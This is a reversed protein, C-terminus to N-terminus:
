FKVPPGTLKFEVSQNPADEIQASLGSSGTRTYKLPILLKGLSTEGADDAKTMSPRQGEYCTISVIHRGPVAGDDPAYSSLKFSGDSQIEGSAPQGRDPQFMITGFPLPKDNYLVMGAVPVVRPNQKCGNGAVCAATLVVALCIRATRRVPNQKSPRQQLHMEKL